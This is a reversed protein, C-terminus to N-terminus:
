FQISFGITPLVRGTDSNIIKTRYSSPNQDDVIPSNNGDRVVTLYPLLEFKNNYLNQIDMFLRLTMKDLYWKKDVRFDLAHYAPLRESNLLDYDLIGRQNTDWFDINSSIKQNFPTYPNSGSYTWKIGLTWNKRLKKGLAINVYYRSDWSSSVYNNNKDLFESRIYSFSMNGYYSKYLQQRLFVEIGYARGKSTSNAPQNGVAVYEGNANAFSISDRTLFPYQDYKKYFGEISLNRNKNLDFHVGASTQFLQIYKLVDKNFSDLKTPYGLLINPPLQYYLGTQISTTIKNNVKYNLSLRPSVQKFPNIMENGATNGDIRVGLNYELRNALRNSINLSIGYQQYPIQFSFNSTDITLDPRAVTSFQDLKFTSLVYDVGYTFVLDNKFIKNKLQFRTNHEKSLYKLILDEENSTNNKYKSAENKLRDHSITLQYISNKKFHKYVAGFTNMQQNGDPIYGINYQLAETLEGDRNIKYQDNIGVAILKLEDNKSLEIKHHYQYDIFSPIVPVNFAKLLYETYSKRFSLIYSSKKTMPGELHLGYESAGLTFKGGLRDKRGYKPNIKLTSSLANSMDAEYAGTNFTIGKVLDTNILGNPGGSLGQVNFHTISPIRIEDLYYANEFSGGGRVIFNYGFSVKPVVGPLSKVTKSIDMTAGPMRQIEDLGLKVISQTRPNQFNPKEVQITVEDIANLKDELQTHLTTPRSKLAEVEYEVQKIYNLHSYQINYIGPDVKLEWNGLSDTTTFVESNQLTVTANFIPARTYLDEVKGNLIAKQAHGFYLCMLFSVM